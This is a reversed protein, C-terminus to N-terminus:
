KRRVVFFVGLAGLVTLVGVIAGFEPVLPIHVNVIAVDIDLCKEKIFDKVKGISTGVLGNKSAVVTVTDGAICHNQPFTVIYTGKLIGHNVSKATKTYNAGNHTCTVTVLAKGASSNDLTIKGEVITESTVKCDHHDHYGCASIYTVSLVLLLASLLVLSYIKKM